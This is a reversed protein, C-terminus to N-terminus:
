EQAILDLRDQAQSFRGLTEAFSPRRWLVEPRAARALHALRSVGEDLHAVADFAMDLLAGDHQRAHAMVEAGHQGAEPKLESQELVTGLELSQAAVDVLHLCM